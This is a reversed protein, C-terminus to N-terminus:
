RVIINETIESLAEWPYEFKALLPYAVSHEPYGYLATVKMADKMSAM